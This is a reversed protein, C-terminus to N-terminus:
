SMCRIIGFISAKIYVLEGFEGNVKTVKNVGIDLLPHHDPTARVRRRPLEAVSEFPNRTLMNIGSTRNTDKQLYIEM